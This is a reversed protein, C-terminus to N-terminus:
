VHINEGSNTKIATMKKVELNAPLESNTAMIELPILKLRRNRGYRIEAAIM